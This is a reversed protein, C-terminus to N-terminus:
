KRVLLYKYKERHRFILFGCILLMYLGNTFYSKFLFIHVGYINIVVPVLAMLALPVYFNFLLMLGAFLEVAKVMHMMFGTKWMGNLIEFIHPPMGLDELPTIIGVGSNSILIYAIWIRLSMEFYKLIKEKNM